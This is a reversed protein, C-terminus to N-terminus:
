LWVRAVSLKLSGAQHLPYLASMHAAVALQRFRDNPHGFVGDAKGYKEGRHLQKNSALRATCRLSSANSRYRVDAFTVKTFTFAFTL